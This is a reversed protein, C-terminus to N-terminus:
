KDHEGGSDNADLGLEKLLEKKLEDYILVSDYRTKNKDVWGEIAQKVEANRQKLVFDFIHQEKREWYKFKSKCKALLKENM